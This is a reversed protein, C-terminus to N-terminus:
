SRVKVTAGSTVVTRAFGSRTATIRVSIRKGRQKATIVLIRKTARRIAKGNALWQYRVTVRSQAFRPAKATLRAGVRARGAIAPRRTVTLRKASTGTRTVVVPATTATAPPAGLGSATVAAHIRAGLHADTLTLTTGTANGIATGDRFWRYTYRQSSHTWTGQTVTLVKGPAATGTLRPAVTAARVPDPATLDVVTLRRRTSTTDGPFRSSFVLRNGVAGAPGTLPEGTGPATDYAGASLPFTGAATGDSRWVLNGYASGARYYLRNGVALPHGPAYGAGPMQALERTGGGTGDTGWLSSATFFSLGWGVSTLGSPGSGQAGPVIDKVVTSGTGDSTWLENGTAPDQVGYYLRGGHATFEGFSPAGAGPSHQHVMVTGAATGDTRWLERNDAVTYATFFVLNGAATLNFPAGGTGGPVIEKVLETTTGDTRYLEPGLGAGLGSGQNNSGYYYAWGGMTASLIAANSDTAVNGSVVGSSTSGSPVAHMAHYGGVGGTYGVFLLRNNVTGLIGGATHGAAQTIKVPAGSGTYVYVSDLPGSPGAVNFFLRGDTVTLRVPNSNIGSTSMDAVMTTGGPTGDTRWLENGNVGDNAAFYLHGDYAVMEEGTSQFTPTAMPTAVDAVAPVQAAALGLGLGLAAGLAAPLRRRRSSRVM